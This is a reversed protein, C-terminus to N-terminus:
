NDNCPGSNFDFFPDRIGNGSTINPLLGNSYLPRIRGAQGTILGLETMILRRAILMESTSRYFIEKTDYKVRLAGSAIAENIADLDSQKFGM